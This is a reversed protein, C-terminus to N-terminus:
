RARRSRTVINTMVTTPHRCPQALRSFGTPANEQVPAPAPLTSYNAAIDRQLTDSEQVARLKRNLVALGTGDTENYANALERMTLTAVFSAPYGNAVIWKRVTRRNDQDILLHGRPGLEKEAQEPTLSPTRM